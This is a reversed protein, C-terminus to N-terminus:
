MEEAARINLETWSMNRETRKRKKERAACKNLKARRRLNSKARRMERAANNDLNTM